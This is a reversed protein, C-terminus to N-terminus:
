AEDRDKKAFPVLGYILGMTPMVSIVKLFLRTYPIEEVIRVERIRPIFVM